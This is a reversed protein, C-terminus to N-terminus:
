DELKMHDFKLCSFYNHKVQVYTSFSLQVFGINLHSSKLSHFPEFLTNNILEFLTNM